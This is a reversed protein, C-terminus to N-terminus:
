KSVNENLKGCFVVKWVGNKDLILNLLNRIRRCYELFVM